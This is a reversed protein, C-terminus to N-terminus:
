NKINNEFLTLTSIVWIGEAPSFKVVPQNKTVHEFGPVVFYTSNPLGEPYKDQVLKLHLKLFKEIKGKTWKWNHIKVTKIAEEM